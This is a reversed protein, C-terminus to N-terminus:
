IRDSRVANSGGPTLVQQIASTKGSETSTSARVLDTIVTAIALMMTAIAVINVKRM